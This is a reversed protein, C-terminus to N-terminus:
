RWHLWEKQNVTSFRPSHSQLRPDMLFRPKFCVLLSAFPAPGNSVGEFHLRGRIFCIEEAHIWVWDHFWQTDTTSKLLMWTVVNSDRERIAKMVWSIVNTGYPPNCYAYCLRNAGERPLVNWTHNLGNDEETYFLRAKANKATAAVDVDFEHGLRSHLFRMVWEPTEHEKSDISKLNIM